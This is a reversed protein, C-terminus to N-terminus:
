AVDEFTILPIDAFYIIAFFLITLIAGYMIMYSSTITRGKHFTDTLIQVLGDYWFGFSIYLIIVLFFVLYQNFRIRKSNNSRAPYNPVNEVVREKKNKKTLIERKPEPEEPLPIYEIDQEPGTNYRSLTEYKFTEKLQKYNSDRTRSLDNGQSEDSKYSNSAGAQDWYVRDTAQVPAKLHNIALSSTSADALMNTTTSHGSRYINGYEGSIYRNPANGYIDSSNDGRGYLGKTYHHHIASVGGPSSIVIHDPIQRDHEIHDRVDASKTTSGDLRRYM